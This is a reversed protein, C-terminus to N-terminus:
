AVVLFSYKDKRRRSNHTGMSQLILLTLVMPCTFIDWDGVAKKSIILCPLSLHSFLFNELYIKSTAMHYKSTDVQTAWAGPMQWRGKPWQANGVGRFKYTSHIRQIFTAKRVQLYHYWFSLNRTIGRRTWQMPAPFLSAGGRVHDGKGKDAWHRPYFPIEMSLEGGKQLPRKTEWASVNHLAQEGWDKKRTRGKWNGLMREKHNLNPSLCPLTCHSLDPSSPTRGTSLTCNFYYMQFEQYDFCLKSPKM